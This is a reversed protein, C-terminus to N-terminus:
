PHLGLLVECVDEPCYIYMVAAEPYMPLLM